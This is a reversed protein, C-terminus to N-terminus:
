TLAKGSTNTGPKEISGLIAIAQPHPLTLQFIMVFIIDRTTKVNTEKASRQVTINHEHVLAITQINTEM